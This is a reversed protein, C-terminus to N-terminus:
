RGGGSQGFVSVRGPDGGFRAINARVWKLAHVIDLMGADGSQALEPGVLDALYTFGLVNLRHNISVVVVDGRRALNTGDTVPSSGSGSAFGGGHCWFMVPRKASDLAPTWVNLVLCDEAEAPLGASAVSLGSESQAGGPDRQPASPGYELADRVGRWKVPDLPPRFRNPGATSAGYPIGKFTMIGDAETGLVRGFSTEAEVFRAQSLAPRLVGTALAGGSLALLSSNKLFDRRTREFIM